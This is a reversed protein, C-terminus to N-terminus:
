YYSILVNHPFDETSQLFKSFFNGMQDQQEAKLVFWFYQPKVRGLIDLLEIM